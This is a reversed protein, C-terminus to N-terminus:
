SLGFSAPSPISAGSARLRWLAEFATDRVHPQPSRLAQYLEMALDEAGLWGIAELAALQEDETGATLARRVMELGAPGPAVGLGERAAFAVLWGLQSPDEIPAPIRWPPNRRRDAAEAAAGRVVWQDDEVQVKELLQLAWDEPIRALGFMAARRTLLDDIEAAERLMAYGEDPHIALAEAAAIRVPEEGALLAQGLGQLADETGIAALALCAAQRVLIEPDGNATDILSQVAEEDAMGGLGLCGLIRSSAAEAQRMRRFLISISPEQAAVLAHIARLRLGYPKNADQAITAVARLLEGRWTAKPPADRLWRASRLLRAHIPDEIEALARSAQPSADGLAAFYRLTAQAPLWLKDDLGEPLEMSAAATAALYAGIAPQFFGVRGRARRIMFGADVLDSVPTGRTLKREELSSSGARIWSLAVAEAQQREEPSLFRSVHAQLDDIPKNSRVDGAFASWARLTLELPSLGRITGTLWGTILAPDPDGVRNKPLTPIVHQQWAGGWRTLFLRQDHETWPAMSMPSLGASVLGDYGDPPGAAVIRNGSYADLLARLWATIRELEQLNLEDLGDLLLLAKRQRFQLRLYAPIRSALGGSATHQAARILPEIPDRAPDKDLDLDAAHILVPLLQATEGMSPDRQAVRIALYALATSKGSGLEGTILISSCKALADALSITPARYVASLTSWDPLNPLLALAHEPIAESGQPDVPQPHVLLRPEVLIEDLAFIARAVHLTEARKILETRYRDRATVNISHRFSQLQQQLLATPLKFAVRIRGLAWTAIIGVILGVFFEPWDFRWGFLNVLM